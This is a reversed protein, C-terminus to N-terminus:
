PLNGKILPLSPGASEGEGKCIGLRVAASRALSYVYATRSPFFVGKEVVIGEPTVSARAWHVPGREGTQAIVMWTGAVASITLPDFNTAAMIDAPTLVRIRARPLLAGRGSLLAALVPDLGGECMAPVRGLAYGASLGSCTEIPSQVEARSGSSAFVLVAAFLISQASVRM